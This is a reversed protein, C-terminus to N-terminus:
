QGRRFIVNSFIRKPDIGQRLAEAGLATLHREAEVLGAERMFAQVAADSAPHVEVQVLRVRSQWLLGSMGRLVHLENGDVDLKILNAPQIAGEKILRDITTAHTIVSAEPTFLQGTEARTHGFQSGSTGSLASKYHFESFEDDEHLASTILRIVQGVRNRQINRLLNAATILHPEFAYVRGDAGCREAALFSYVGVNAGIDYVVDGPQVEERLWKVTGPEKENVTRVRDAEIETECLITYQGLGQQKGYVPLTEVPKQLTIARGDPLLHGTAWAGPQFAEGAGRHWHYVYVGQMIYTHRGVMRLAEWMLRDVYHLGNPFGGAERWAAKSLVMVVGSPTREDQTVDTLTLNAMLRAGVSRHYTMDHNDPDVDPVQQFPCKIRNTVPAFCGQPYQLVAAAVQRHWEPTTFVADHDILIAWGDEPLAAMVANYARGLNRDDAYPVSAQLVPPAQPFAWIEQPLRLWGPCLAEVARRVGPFHLDHGLLVGTPKLKPRWALIDARVAEELHDADIFVFDLAGDLFQAAAEVSPAKMLTSRGPFRTSVAERLKREQEPLADGAYSYGGEAHRTDKEPQAEWIDVGTLRLDPCHELLHLFTAGKEVGVEVGLTWGHELILRKLIIRHSVGDFAASRYARPDAM